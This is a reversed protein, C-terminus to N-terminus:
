YGLVHLVSFGFLRDAQYYGRDICHSSDSWIGLKAYIGIREFYM